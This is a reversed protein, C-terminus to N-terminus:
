AWASSLKTLMHLAHPYLTEFQTKLVCAWFVDGHNWAVPLIRFTSQLIHFIALLYFAFYVHPIMRFGLRLGLWQEAVTKRCRYEMYYWYSIKRMGFDCKVMASVDAAIPTVSHYATSRHPTIIMRVQCNHRSQTFSHSLDIYTDSKGMNKSAAYRVVKGLM